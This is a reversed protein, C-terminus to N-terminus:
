LMEKYVLFSIYCIYSFLFIWWQFRSITHRVWTFLFVYLMLSSLIMVWIDFNNSINFPLSTIISSLWLVWLINFVNSWVVNWIAIDTKWKYAAMASTALEPLSTWIAVITLWIMTESLNFMNAVYIAWDVIFKWWLTLWILWIIIYYSSKLTTFENVQEDWEIKEVLTVIDESVSSKALSFTYYAFISFFSILVFWDIRSLASINSWDILSDNILFFLVFSILLAFPLERWVTDKHVTLPYIMASVWLIFFINAINSWLINWVAIWTNWNFAAIVNIALEPASTWFAVVTLGIILGSINFKKAISSAGDILYDAWKILIVFWLFLLLIETM